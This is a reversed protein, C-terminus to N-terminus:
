INPESDFVTIMVLLFILLYLMGYSINIITILLNVRKKLIIVNEDIDNPLSITKEFLFHMKREKRSIDIKLGLDILNKQLKEIFTRKILEIFFSVVILIFLAKVAFVFM